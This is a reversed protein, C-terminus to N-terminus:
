GSRAVVRALARDDIWAERYYVLELPAVLELLENIELLFRPGPRPHRELNRRTPLECVLCGGPALRRRLEPFLDRQLYSFCAILDFPGEPLAERELDLLRTSLRLGAADANERCLRIAEPSVDVATTELGRRALWLAVRGAGAAVDLGRGSAPLERDFEDLWGPLELGAHSGARYRRDWRERDAEAM